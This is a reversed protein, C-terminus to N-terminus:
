AISSADFLHVLEDSSAEGGLLWLGINRAEDSSFFGHPLTCGDAEMRCGRPASAGARDDWRKLQRHTDVWHHFFPEPSGTRVCDGFSTVKWPARGSGAFGHAFGGFSSM